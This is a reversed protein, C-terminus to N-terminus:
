ESRQEQEVPPEDQEVLVFLEAWDGGPLQDRLDELTTGSIADDVVDMVARVHHVADGSESEPEYDGREVIRDVFEDWSFSEVADVKELHRGIEEPLQAALNEAGEPDIRESVTELTIRIVRVADERSSLQARNQVEGVFTDYDMDDPDQHRIEM